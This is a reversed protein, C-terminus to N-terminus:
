KANWPVIVYGVWRSFPVFWSLWVKPQSYTPEWTPLCEMRALNYYKVFRSKGTERGCQSSPSKHDQFEWSDIAVVKGLNNTPKQHNKLRCNQQSEFSGYIFWFLPTLHIFDPSYLYVSQNQQAVIKMYSTMLTRVLVFCGTTYYHWMIDRNKLVYSLDTLCVLYVFLIPYWGHRAGM